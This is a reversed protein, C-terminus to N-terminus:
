YWVYAPRCRINLNRLFKLAELATEHDKFSLFGRKMHEYGNLKVPYDVAATLANIGNEKLYENLESDTKIDEMTQPFRVYFADYNEEDTQQSLAGSSDPLQLLIPKNRIIPPNAMLRRCASEDSFLMRGNGKSQNNGRTFLQLFLINGYESFISMLEVATVSEDVHYFYLLFERNGPTMMESLTSPLGPSENTLSATLTTLSATLTSSLTRSLSNVRNVLNSASKGNGAPVVINSDERDIVDFGSAKPQYSPVKTQKSTEEDVSFPKPQFPSYPNDPQTFVPIERGDDEFDVPDPNFDPIQHKNSDEETNIKNQINPPPKFDIKPPNPNTPTIKPPSFLPLELRQNVAYNANNGTQNETQNTQQNSTQHTQKKANQRKAPPPPQSKLMQYKYDFNFIVM